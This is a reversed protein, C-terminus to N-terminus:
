PCYVEATATAQAGTSPDTVVAQLDDGCGVQKMSGSWSFAGCSDTNATASKLVLSGSLIRISVTVNPTFCVGSISLLTIRSTRPVENSASFSISAGPLS